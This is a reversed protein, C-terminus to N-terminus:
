FIIFIFVHFLILERFMYYIIAFIIIYLHFQLSVEEKVVENNEESSEPLDTQDGKQSM